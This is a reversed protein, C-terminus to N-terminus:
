PFNCTLGPYRPVCLNCICTSKWEQMTLTGMWDCFPLDTRPMHIIISSSPIHHKFVLSLDPRDQDDSIIVVDPTVVMKEIWKELDSEVNSQSSDSSSDIVLQCGTSNLSESERLSNNLIFTSVIHGAKKLRCAAPSFRLLDDASSFVLAFTGFLRTQEPKSFEDGALDQERIVEANEQLSPELILEDKPIEVSATLSRCWDMILDGSGVVFGGTADPRSEAIIKGLSIWTDKAFGLHNDPLLESPLIFPPVLFRAAKPDESPPLCTLGLNDSSSSVVGRPGFPAVMTESSFTFLSIRSRPDISNLGDEELILVWDTTAQKAGHLIAMDKNIGVPWVLLSFETMDGREELLVMDRIVTKTQPQIESPSILIIESLTRGASMVTHLIDRLTSISDSTVPLVATLPLLQDDYLNAATFPDEKLLLPQLRADLEPFNELSSSHKDEISINHNSLVLKTKSIEAERRNGLLSNLLSFSWKICMLVCAIFLTQLLCTRRAALSRKRAKLVPSSPQSM